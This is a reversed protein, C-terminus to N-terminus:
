PTIRNLKYSNLMQKHDDSLEGPAAYTISQGETSESKIGQAFRLNFKKAVLETALQTLDFPLTHLAPNLENTFDILYGATYTLRFAQPFAVMGGFFRIFGPKLYSLYADASYTFWTPNSPVGARYEVSTLTIVPRNSMFITKAATTDKIEVYNTSIFKRGCYNEIFDTVASVMTDIVADRAADTSTLALYSKVKATTTIAYPVSAM